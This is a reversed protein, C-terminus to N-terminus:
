DNRRRRARAVGRPDSDAAAEAARTSGPTRSREPIRAAGGAVGRSSLPRLTREPSHTPVARELTTTRSCQRADRVARTCTARDLCTPLLTPTKFESWSDGRCSTCSTARQGRRRRLVGTGNFPDAQVTPIGRNRGADRRPEGTLTPVRNDHFERDSFTPGSHCLICRAAGVFLRLGERAAPTLARQREVDGSRVGAVFEDFPSARSVLRREYAAIAKGFNAFVRDVALRDAAAM